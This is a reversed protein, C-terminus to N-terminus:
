CSNSSEEYLLSLSRRPLPPAKLDACEPKSVSSNLLDDVNDREPEAASPQNWQSPFDLLDQSAPPSSVAGFEWLATGNSRRVGGDYRGALSNGDDSEEIVIGDDSVEDEAKHDSANECDSERSDPSLPPSCFGPGDLIQQLGSPDPDAKASDLKQRKPPTETPLSGECARRKALSLRPEISCLAEEIMRPVEPRTPHAHPKCLATLAKLGAESCDTLASLSRPQMKRVFETLESSSSHITSLVRWIGDVYVSNTGNQDFKMKEDTTAGFYQASPKIFLASPNKIIAREVSSNGRIKSKNNHTILVKSLDSGDSSQRALGSGRSAAPHRSPVLASLAAARCAHFRSEEPDM